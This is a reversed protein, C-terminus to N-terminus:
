GWHGCSQPSIARSSGTRRPQFVANSCWMQGNSETDFPLTVSGEEEIYLSM